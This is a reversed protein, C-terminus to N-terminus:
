HNRSFAAHQEFLVIEEGLLTNRREFLTIQDDRLRAEEDGLNSLKVAADIQKEQEAIRERQVDILADKKNIQGNQTEVREALRKNIDRLRKICRKEEEPGDSSEATPNHVRSSLNPVQSDLAELVKSMAQKMTTATDDSEDDADGLSHIAGVFSEHIGSRIELLTAQMKAAPSDSAM